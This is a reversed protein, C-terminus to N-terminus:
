LRRYRRYKNLDTRKETIRKYDNLKRELQGLTKISIVIKGIMVIVYFISFACIFSLIVPAFPHMILNNFLVM